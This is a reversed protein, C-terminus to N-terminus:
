LLGKFVIYIFIFVIISFYFVIFLIHSDQEYRVPLV